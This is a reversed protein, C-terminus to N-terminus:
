NFGMVTTEKEVVSSWNEKQGHLVVLVVNSGGVLFETPFSLVVTATGVVAAIVIVVVALLVM